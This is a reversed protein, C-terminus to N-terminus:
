CWRDACLGVLAVLEITPTVGGVLWSRGRGGIAGGEVARRGWMEEQSM